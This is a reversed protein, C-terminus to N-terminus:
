MQLWKRIEDANDRWILRQESSNTTHTQRDPVRNDGIFEKNCFDCFIVLDSHGNLQSIEDSGLQHRLHDTCEQLVDIAALKNFPNLVEIKQTINKIEHKIKDFERFTRQGPEVWPRSGCRHGLINLFEPWIIYILQRTITSTAFPSFQNFCRRTVRLHTCM